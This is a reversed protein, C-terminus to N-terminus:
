DAGATFSLVTPIAAGIDKGDTAAKAFPSAARCMPSPVGAGQCLRYDGGVGQRYDVFSVVSFGNGGTAACNVGWPADCSGPTGVFCSTAGDSGCVQNTAPFSSTTDDKADPTDIAAQSAYVGMALVNHTFTWTGDTLLALANYFGKTAVSANHDYGQLPRVALNDRIVLRHLL